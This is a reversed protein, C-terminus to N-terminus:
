AEKKPLPLVHSVQAGPAAMSSLDVRNVVAQEAMTSRLEERHAALLVPLAMPDLPIVDYLARRRMMSLLLGLLKAFAAKRKEFETQKRARCLFREAIQRQMHCHCTSHATHM